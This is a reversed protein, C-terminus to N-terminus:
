NNVVLSSEATVTIPPLPVLPVLSSYTYAAAVTVTSGRGNDPDWEPNVTIGSLVGFAADRVRDRVDDGGPDCSTTGPAAPGTSCGITNAGNVIAYRAGERTANNLTEYYFIFRGAEIIGFLLLFFLPAVMAFEVM